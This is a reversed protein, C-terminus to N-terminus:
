NADAADTTDVSEATLDIKSVEVCANELKSSYITQEAYDVIAVCSVDSHNDLFVKCANSTRKLQRSKEDATKSTSKLSYKLMDIEHVVNNYDNVFSATCSGEDTVSNSKDKSCAGIFVTMACLFILKSKM